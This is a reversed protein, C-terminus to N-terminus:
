SPKRKLLPFINGILRKTFKSRNKLLMRLVASFASDLPLIENSEDSNMAAIIEIFMNNTVLSTPMGVRIFDIMFICHGLKDTM